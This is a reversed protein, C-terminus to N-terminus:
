MLASGAASSIVLASGSSHRMRLDYQDIRWSAPWAFNPNTQTHDFTKYRQASVGIDGRLYWGYEGVTGRLALIPTPPPPVYAPPPPV